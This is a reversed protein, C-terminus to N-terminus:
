KMAGAPTGSPLSGQSAGNPSSNNGTLRFEVFAKPNSASFTMSTAAGYNSNASQGQTAPHADKVLTGQASAGDPALTLAALALLAALAPRRGASARFSIGCLIHRM